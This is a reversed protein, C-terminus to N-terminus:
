PQPVEPKLYAGVGGDSSLIANLYAQMGVCVAQRLYVGVASRSVGVARAITKSDIGHSALKFYTRLM